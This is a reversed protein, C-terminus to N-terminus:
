IGLIGLKLLGVPLAIGLLNVFLVYIVAPTAIIAAVAAITRRGEIVLLLYAVLVMMSLTFGLVYLLPVVAVFGAWVLVARWPNPKSQGEDTSLHRRRTEVAGVRGVARVEPGSSRLSQWAMVVGLVTLVSSVLMPFLGPGPIGGAFMRIGLALILAGLGTLSVAVGFLFEAQRM